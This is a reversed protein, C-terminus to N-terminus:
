EIWDGGGGGVGDAVGPLSRCKGSAGAAVAVVAGDVVVAVAVTWSQWCTRNSSSTLTSMSRTATWTTRTRTARRTAM